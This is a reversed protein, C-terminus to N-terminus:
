GPNEAGKCQPEHLDKFNLNIIIGKRSVETENMLSGYVVFQQSISFPEIIVNSIVIDTDLIHLTNWTKGENFSYIVEQTPTQHKAM